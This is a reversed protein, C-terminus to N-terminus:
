KWENRILIHLDGYRAFRPRPNLYINFELVNLINGMDTQTVSLKRAIRGDIGDVNKKRLLSLALRRSLLYIICISSFCISVTVCDLNQM